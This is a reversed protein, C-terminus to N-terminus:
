THIYMGLVYNYHGFAYVIITFYYDYVEYYYHYYYYYYYYYYCSCTSYLLTSYLLTSYLIHTCLVLREVACRLVTTCTAPLYLPPPSTSTSYLTSYPVVARRLELLGELIDTKNRLLNRTIYDVNDLIYIYQVYLFYMCYLYSSSLAMWGVLKKSYSYISYTSYRVSKATHSIIDHHLHNWNRDHLNCNLNQM